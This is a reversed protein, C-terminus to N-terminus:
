ALHGFLVQRLDLISACADPQYHYLGPPVAGRHRHEGVDIFSAVPQPEAAHVRRRTSRGAAIRCGGFPLAAVRGRPRVQSSIRERVVEIEVRVEGVEEIVRDIAVLEVLGIGTAEGTGVDADERPLAGAFRPDRVRELVAPSYNM